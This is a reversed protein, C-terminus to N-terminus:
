MSAISRSASEVHKNNIDPINKKKWWSVIVDNVFSLSISIDPYLWSAISM